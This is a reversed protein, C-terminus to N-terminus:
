SGNNMKKLEFYRVRAESMKRKTEDSRKYSAAKSMKERAEKSPPSDKQWKKIKLITEDSLKKGINIERLKQKHEVSKKKGTLKKSIKNKQEDTLKKGKMYGVHGKKSNSIKKKHEETMKSAAISLKKKWEEINQRGHIGEGGDTQNCLLGGNSERGYLKIFEIEKNIAEQKTLNDIMIEVHYEINKTIAMWRKNRSKISKARNFNETCGIGIYFPQDIDTRIHRYLYWKKNVFSTILERAM